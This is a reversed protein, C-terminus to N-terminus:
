IAPLAGTSIGSRYKDWLEDNNTGQSEARVRVKAQSANYEDVLQELANGTEGALFHWLVVEVPGAAQDLADVPCDPLADTPPATASDDSGGGCAGAVLGCF